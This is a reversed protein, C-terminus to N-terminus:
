RSLGNLTLSKFFPCPTINVTCQDPKQPLDPLRDLLGQFSPPFPPALTAEDICSRQYDWAWGFHLM